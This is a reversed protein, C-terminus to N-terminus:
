NSYLRIIPKKCICSFCAARNRLHLVYYNHKVSVTLM